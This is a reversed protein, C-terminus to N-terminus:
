KLLFEVVTQLITIIKDVMLATNMPKNMPLTCVLFGAAAQRVEVLIFAFITAVGISYMHLLKSVCPGAL